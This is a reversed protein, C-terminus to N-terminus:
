RPLEDLVAPRPGDATSAFSLVWGSGKPTRYTSTPGGYLAALAPPILKGQSCVVVAGPHEALGNLRKAALHPDAEEDFAADPEVTLELASALPQLTQVCRRPTASILRTPAFCRLPAVLAAARARGKDDLARLRDPRHHGRKGAPAHRVLVVPSRLEPLETFAALVKIDHPYSLRALAVDAPLWDLADTEDGPEFGDDAVVTMAWYDVVKEVLQTLAWVDYHVTPLRAGVSPRLGTEEWVERYAGAIPNEGRRLKGKPLSWDDYRPRHVIAVEQAGGTGTRWVVGGAARQQASDPESQRLADV